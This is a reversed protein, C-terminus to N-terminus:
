SLGQRIAWAAIEARSRLELKQRIHDAHSDATRESIVLREAIERSTLGAAILAAVERERPSLLGLAERVNTLAAQEPRAEATDLAFSMAEDVSLARGDAWATEFADDGLEARAATIAATHRRRRHPPMPLGVTDRLAEAAGWLRVARQLDHEAAAVSAFGELTLPV